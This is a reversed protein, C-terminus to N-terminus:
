TLRSMFLWNNPPECEGHVLSDLLCLVVLASSAHLTNFALSSYNFAIVLARLTYLTLRRVAAASFVRAFVASFHRFAM